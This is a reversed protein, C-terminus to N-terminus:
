LTYSFGILFRNANFNEENSEALNIKRFFDEKISHKFTNRNELSKLDYQLYNWCKPGLFSLSSKGTETRKRM